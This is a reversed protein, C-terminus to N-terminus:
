QLKRVHREFAGGEGGDPLHEHTVEPLSANQLTLLTGQRTADDAM